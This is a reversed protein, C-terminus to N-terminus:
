KSRPTVDTNVPIERRLRILDSRVVQRVGVPLPLPLPRAPAPLPFGALIVVPLLRFPPLNHERKIEFPDPIHSMHYKHAAQPVGEGNHTDAHSVTNDLGEQVCGFAMVVMVM